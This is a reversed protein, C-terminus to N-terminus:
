SRPASGDGFISYVTSIRFWGAGFFQGSGIAGIEEGDRARNGGQRVGHRGAAHRAGVLLLIPPGGNGSDVKICTACFSHPLRM